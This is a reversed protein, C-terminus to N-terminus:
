PSFQTKDINQLGNVASASFPFFPIHFRQCDSEHSFRSRGCYFRRSRAIIKITFYYRQLGFDRTAALAPLAKIM